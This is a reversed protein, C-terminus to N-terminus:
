RAVPGLPLLGSGSGVLGSGSGGGWGVLGGSGSGGLGSALKV